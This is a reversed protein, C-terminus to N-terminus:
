GVYLVLYAWNAVVAVSLFCLAVIKERETLEIRLERGSLLRLLCVCVWGALVTFLLPNCLWGAVLRGQLFCLGGRTFGCTPCPLGTLRKFVCLRLQMGVRYALYVDAAGLALWLLVVAIAWAPGPARRSARVLRLRM